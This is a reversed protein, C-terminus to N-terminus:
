KMVKKLFKVFVDKDIPKSITYDAGQHLGYSKTTKKGTDEILIILIKKFAPNARIERCIQFGNVVPTAVDILVADPIVSHMKALVEVGDHACVTTHGIHTVFDAMKLTEDYTQGAVVIISM